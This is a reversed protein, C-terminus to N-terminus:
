GNNDDKRNYSKIRIIEQKIKSLTETNIKKHMDSILKIFANLSIVEYDDSQGVKIYITNKFTKIRYYTYGHSSNYTDGYVSHYKRGFDSMDNVSFSFYREINPDYKQLKDDIYKKLQNLNDLNLSDIYKFDIM